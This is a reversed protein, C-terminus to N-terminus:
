DLNTVGYAEWTRGGDTTRFFGDREDHLFGTEPDTFFLDLPTGSGVTAIGYAIRAFM